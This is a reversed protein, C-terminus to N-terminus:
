SFIIKVMDLFSGTSSSKSNEKKLVAGETVAGRFKWDGGPDKLARVM